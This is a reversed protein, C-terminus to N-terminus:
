ILNEMEKKYQNLTSEIMNFYYKEVVDQNSHKKIFNNFFKIFDMIFENYQQLDVESKVEEILSLFVEQLKEVQYRSFFLDPAYTNFIIGNYDDFYSFYDKAQYCSFFPCKKENEIWKENEFLM